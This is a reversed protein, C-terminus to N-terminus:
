VMSNNLINVWIFKRIDKKSVGHLDLLIAQYGQHMRLDKNAKIAAKIAQIEPNNQDEQLLKPLKTKQM